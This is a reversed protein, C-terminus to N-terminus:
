GPVGSELQYIMRWILDTQGREIAELPKLGNFAPNPELLWKGIIGPELVRALAERLREIETLRRSVADGPPKGKEFEALSRESVGTL